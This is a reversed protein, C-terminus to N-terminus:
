PGPGPAAGTLTWGPGLVVGRDLTFTGAPLRLTGGTGSALVQELARRNAAPDDSLTLDHHHHGTM